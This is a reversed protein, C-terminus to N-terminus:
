ANSILRAPCPPPPPINAAQQQLFHEFDRAVGGIVLRALMSPQPHELCINTAIESALQSLAAREMPKLPVTLFNPRKELATPWPAKWDYAIFDPWCAAWFRSVGSATGSPLATAQQLYRVVILRAVQSPEIPAAEKVCAELDTQNMAEFEKPFECVRQILKTRPKQGIKTLTKLEGDTLAVTINRKGATKPVTGPM